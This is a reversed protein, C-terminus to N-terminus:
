RPKTDPMITLFINNTGFSVRDFHYIKEENIVLNGNLYCGSDDGGEIPVIFYEDEIKKIIAHVGRIGMGGIEIDNAPSHGRKGVKVEDQDISYKVKRSLQPDQNLNALHPKKVDIQQYDEEEHM